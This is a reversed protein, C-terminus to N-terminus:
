LVPPGPRRTARDAGRGWRPRAERMPPPPALVDAVLERTLGEALRTEPEGLWGAGRAATLTRDDRRARVRVEEATGAAWLVEIGLRRLTDSEAVLERVRNAQVQPDTMGPPITM